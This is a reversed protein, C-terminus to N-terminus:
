ENKLQQYIRSRKDNELRDIATFFLGLIESLLKFEVWINVNLILFSQNIINEDFIQEILFQRELLIKLQDYAQPLPMTMKIYRLYPKIHKKLSEQQTENLDENNIKLFKRLM